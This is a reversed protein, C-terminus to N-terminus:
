CRKKHPYSRRPCGSRLGYALALKRYDAWLPDTNIDSVIVTEKRYAATGCSGARPGINVGDVATMFDPPFSPAIGKRLREGNPKLRRVCREDKSALPSGLRMALELYATDYVSLGHQRALGLTTKGADVGSVNAGGSPSQRQPRKMRTPNEVGPSSPINGHNKAPKFRMRQRAMRQQNCALSSAKGAPTILSSAHVIRDTASNTFNIRRKALPQGPLVGAVRLKRGGCKVAEPALDRV